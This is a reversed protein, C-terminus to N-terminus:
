IWLLVSSWHESFHFIQRLILVISIPCFLFVHTVLLGCEFFFMANMKTRENLGFENSQSFSYM